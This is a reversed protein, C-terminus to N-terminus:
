AAEDLMGIVAARLAANEVHETILGITFEDGGRLVGLVIHECGIWNDKHALAERLALELVKKAPKTFPLHGRRRRRRGSTPLADDFADPGFTRNVADRVAGLDIGLSRLADADAEFSEEDLRGASALRDRVAGTTLGYGDLVASLERGASQLVGVLIHEPRIEDSNLERSEEQALVVAVRASRTFREFMTM